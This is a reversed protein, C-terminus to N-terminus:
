KATEISLVTIAGAVRGATFRVKDGEKLSALMAPEAVRFVMTMAGMDLNPIPGHRLTLRGQAADVKRVEGEVLPASAAAAASAPAGHDHSHQAFSPLSLSVLVFLASLKM